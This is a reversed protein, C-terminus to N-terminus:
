HYSMASVVEVGHLFWDSFVFYLWEGLKAPMLGKSLLDDMTTSSVLASSQWLFPKLSCFDWEDENTLCKSANVTFM